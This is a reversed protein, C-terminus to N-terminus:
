ARSPPRPRHPGASGERRTSGEREWLFPAGTFSFVNESPYDGPVCQEVGFQNDPCKETPNRSTFSMLGGLSMARGVAFFVGANFGASWGSWRDNSTTFNNNDRFTAEYGFISLKPGIVFEGTGTPFQLHFLPSIGFDFETADWQQSSPVDKFNLVDIRLEGNISFSPNVRGGLLVGLTAGPKYFTGTDGAFCHFGIYPM